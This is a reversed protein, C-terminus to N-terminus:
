CQSPFPFGRRPTTFTYQVATPSITSQPTLSFCVKTPIRSLYGVLCGPMTTTHQCAPQARLLSTRYVCYTFKSELRLV